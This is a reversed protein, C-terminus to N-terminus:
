SNPGPILLDTSPPRLLSLRVGGLRSRRVGGLAVRVGGLFVRCLISFLSSFEHGLLLCDVGSMLSSYQSILSSEGREVGATELDGLGKSKWSKLGELDGDGRVMLDGM